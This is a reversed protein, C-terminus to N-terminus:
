KKIFTVEWLIKSLSLFLIIQSTAIGNVVAANPPLISTGV